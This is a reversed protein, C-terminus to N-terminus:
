AQGAAIKQQEPEYTGHADEQPTIQPQQNQRKQKEKEEMEYVWNTLEGAKVQRTYFPKMQAESRAERRGSARQGAKPIRGAEEAWRLANSVWNRLKLRAQRVKKKPNELYLCYKAVEDELFDQDCKLETMIKDLYKEDRKADFIDRYTPATSLDDFMQRFPHSAEYRVVRGQPKQEIEPLLSQQQATQTHANQTTTSDNKMCEEYIPISPSVPTGVMPVNTDCGPVDGQVAEDRQPYEEVQYKEWNCLTILNGALTKTTVLVQEDRLIKLHRQITRRSVGLAKAVEAANLLCQGLEVSYTGGHSSMKSDKFRTQSCIFTLTTWIPPSKLVWSCAVSRPVKFWGNLGHCFDRM